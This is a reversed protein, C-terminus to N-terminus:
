SPDSFPSWDGVGSLCRDLSERRRAVLIRLVCVDDCNMELLTARYRSPWIDLASEARSPRDVRSDPKQPNSFFSGQHADCSLRNLLEYISPDSVIPLCRLGIYLLAKFNGGRGTVARLHPM